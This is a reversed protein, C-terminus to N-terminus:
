WTWFHSLPMPGIHGVKTMSHTASLEVSPQLDLLSGGVGVGPKTFLGESM